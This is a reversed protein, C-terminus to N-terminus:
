GSLEPVREWRETPSVRLLVQCTRGPGQLHGLHSLRPYFQKNHMVDDGPIWDELDLGGSCDELNKLIHVYRISGGSKQLDARLPHIPLFLAPLLGARGPGPAPGAGAHRAPRAHHRASVRWLLDYTVIAMAGIGGAPDGGRRDPEASSQAVPRWCAM